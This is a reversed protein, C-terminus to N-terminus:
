RGSLEQQEPKGSITLAASFGILDRLTSFKRAQPATTCSVNMIQLENDSDFFNRSESTPQSIDVEGGPYYRSDM